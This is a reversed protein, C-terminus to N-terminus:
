GAREEGDVGERAGDEPLRSARLRVIRKGEIGEVVFRWGDIEAVEGGRAVRGLEKAVIGGITDVGEAELGSGTLENFDDVDLGADIRLSGDSLPVVMPEERDYEDQIEGVLEELVDELTVIGATGGYEDVVVALHVRDRQFERLAEDIKKAEPVFTPPRVMEVVPRPAVLGHVIPLLDKAYLVGVVEDLSERYVPVRSHEAARITEAAEKWPTSAEIAVLDPRPTMVERVTTDGFAFISTIMRREAIDLDTRASTEAVLSRVEQSTLAEGAAPPGVIRDIARSLAAIPATVPFLIRNWAELVPGARRAWAGPREVALAKPAMEAVVLVVFGTALWAGAWGVPGPDGGFLRRAIEWGLAATWVVALLHGLAIGHQLRGPRRLLRALRASASRDSEGFAADSPASLAFLAGEAAAFFAAGALGVAAGAVLPLLDIM